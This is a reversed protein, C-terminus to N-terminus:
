EAVVFDYDGLRLARRWAACSTFNTFEHHARFQGLYEVRTEFHPGTFPYQLALGVLAVRTHPPVFRGWAFLKARPTSVDAFRNREFAHIVPLGAILAVVALGALAGRRMAAPLSVALLVVAVLLAAVALARLEVRPTSLLAAAVLAVGVAAVADQKDRLLPLGPLLVFAAIFAPLAYRLNYAFLFAHGTTDGATTPTVVYAAVSAAITLTVGVLLARHPTAADSRLAVLWAVIAFGVLLLVVPWAVGFFRLLGQPASHFVFAHRSLNDAVSPATLQLLTMPPAPLIGTHLTPVPNGVQVLNRVFWFAGGVVLGGTFLSADVLRRRTLWWITVALGGVPAVMTLKTGLAFGAALGALALAAPAEPEDLRFAFALAAVFLTIATFDSFASGGIGAAFLPALLLISYGIVATAGAAVRRGACYAALLGLVMSFFTIFPSLVDSRLTVMAIAHLLESNAPYYATGANASAYALSTTRHDQVFRVAQPLHYSVSDVDLIGHRLATWSGLSWQAAALCGAVVALKAALPLGQWVVTRPRAAVPRAPAAFRRALVVTAAAAAVCALALPVRRFQGVCGVAEATVVLGALAVVCAALARDATPWRGGVTRAVTRGAWAWPGVVLLFSAVGAAYAAVSM